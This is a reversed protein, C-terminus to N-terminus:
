RKPVPKEQPIVTTVADLDPVDAGQGRGTNTSAGPSKGRENAHMREFLRDLRDAAGPKGLKRLEAYLDRAVSQTQKLNDALVSSREREAELEIEAKVRARAAEIRDADIASERKQAALMADKLASIKEYANVLAITFGILTMFGVAIGGLGIWTTADFTV